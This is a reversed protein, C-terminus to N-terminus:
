LNKLLAIFMKYEKLTEDDIQYGQNLAIHCNVIQLAKKSLKIRKNLSIDKYYEIDTEPISQISEILGASISEIGLSSGYGRPFFLKDHNQLLFDSTIFGDIRNHREKYSFIPLILWKVEQDPRSNPNRWTSDYKKLLLVPRRKGASAILDENSEIEFFKMVYQHRTPDHHDTYKKVKWTSEAENKHNYDADKLKWRNKKDFLVPAYCIHGREFPSDFPIEKYWSSSEEDFEDNLMEIITDYADKLTDSPM